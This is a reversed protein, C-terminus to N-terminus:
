CDALRLAEFVVDAVCADIVVPARAAKCVDAAGDAFTIELTISFNRYSARELFAEMQTTPLSVTNRIQKRIMRYVFQLELAQPARSAVPAVPPDAGARFVM